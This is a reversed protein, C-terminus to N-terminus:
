RSIVLAYAHIGFVFVGARNASRRCRRRRKARKEVRGYFNAVGTRCLIRGAILFTVGRPPVGRELAALTLM